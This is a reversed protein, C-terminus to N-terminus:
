WAVGLAEAVRIASRLGDEHFGYFWYAGCFHARHRGSVAAWRTQAAIAERTYLPHTYTMRALVKSAEIPAPPNLTTCYSEPADLRQLRNLDYTLTAGTSADGLRYNWAARAAARRPLYGADTHLWAENTTTRFAGLVDKEAPTADTLLPLVEDGHCAFVVEDARVAPRNAFQIEVGDATRCVGTAEANVHVRGSLPATLHPIYASSGGRVIKWTPRDVFALMGHNQFFQILTVAPFERLSDLSASWVASAMPFLFQETFAAGFRHEDLFAGLSVREAGPQALLRPAIRSFRAIEFFLAFHAPRVLNRRTAFFGNLDRSSYELDRAPWTVAFSMDSDLTEVGLERFLRVLNPYTRDNHVLFGTDLAVRGHPRDILHTHTHGGLRPAREFLDVDHRRSLLWAAALGSIGSGLVAIRSV